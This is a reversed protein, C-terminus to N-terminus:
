GAPPLLDATRVAFTCRCHPCHVDVTDADAAMRQQLAAEAKEVEAPTVGPVPSLPANGPVWAPATPLVQDLKYEPWGMEALPVGATALPGLLDGLKKHDVGALSTIQDHTSLVIDAEEDTLDTVTVEVEQDGLVDQRLHGDILELSGDPLERALLTGVFGVLSLLSVLSSRQYEPHLRWNKPHIKLDCVRVRRVGLNRNRYQETAM